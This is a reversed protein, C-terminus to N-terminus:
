DNIWGGIRRATYKFELGLTRRIKCRRVRQGFTMGQEREQEHIRADKEAQEDREHELRSERYNWEYDERAAAEYEDAYVSDIWDMEM